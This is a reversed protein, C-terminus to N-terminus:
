DVEGEAHVLPSSAGLHTDTFSYFEVYRVYRREVHGRINRGNRKKQPVCWFRLGKPCIM